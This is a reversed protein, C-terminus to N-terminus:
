GLIGGISVRFAKMRSQRNPERSFSWEPNGRTEVANWLITKVLDPNPSNRHGLTWQLYENMIGM